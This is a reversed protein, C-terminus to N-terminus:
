EVISTVTVATSTAPSPASETGLRRYRRHGRDAVAAAGGRQGASLAEVERRVDGLTGVAVGDFREDAEEGDVGM